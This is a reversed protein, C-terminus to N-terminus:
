DFVSRKSIPGFDFHPFQEGLEDTGQSVQFMLANSSELVQLKFFRGPITEYGDFLSIPFIREETAKSESDNLIEILVTEENVSIIRIPFSDKLRWGRSASAPLLEVGIQARFALSDQGDITGILEGVPPFLNSTDSEFPNRLEMSSNHKDSDIAIM